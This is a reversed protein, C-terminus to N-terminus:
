LIIPVVIGASIIPVLSSPGLDYIVSSFSLTNGSKGLLQCLLCLRFLNCIYYIFITKPNSRLLFINQHLPVLPRKFSLFFKFKKLELIVPMAQIDSINVIIIGLTYQLGSEVVVVTLGTLIPPPSLLATVSNLKAVTVVM